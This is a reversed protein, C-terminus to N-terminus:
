GFYEKILEAQKETLGLARLNEIDIVKLSSHDHGANIIKTAIKRGIGRIGTLDTFLDPEQDKASPINVSSIKLLHDLTTSQNGEDDYKLPNGEDDLEILSFIISKSRGKTLRCRTNVCVITLQLAPKEQNFLFEIHSLRREGKCAPCRMRGRITTPVILQEERNYRERLRQQNKNLIVSM